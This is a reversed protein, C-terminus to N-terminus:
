SRLEAVADVIPADIYALRASTAMAEAHHQEEATFGETGFRTPAWGFRKRSSRDWGTSCATRSCRTSRPRHAAIM